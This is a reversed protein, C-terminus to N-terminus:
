EGAEQWILDALVGIQRAMKAIGPKDEPEKAQTKAAQRESWKDACVPCLWEGDGELGLSGWGQGLATKVASKRADDPDRRHFGRAYDHCVRSLVKQGDCKITVEYKEM